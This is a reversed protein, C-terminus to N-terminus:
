RTVFQLVAIVGIGVCSTSEARVVDERWRCVRAQDDARWWNSNAGFCCPVHVGSSEGSQKPRQNDQRKGSARPIVRVAVSYDRPRPTHSELTEDNRTENVDFRKECLVAKKM